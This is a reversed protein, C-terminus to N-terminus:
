RAILRGRLDDVKVFHVTEALTAYESNRVKHVNEIAFKVSRGPLRVYCGVMWQRAPHVVFFDSLFM